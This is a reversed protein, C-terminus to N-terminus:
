GLEVSGRPTQLSVTLGPEDGSGVPIALELVSLVAEVTDPRPHRLAVADLACGTAASAAPHPTDGWDILFPVLGGGEPYVSRTLRWSLEVGDPRRRSMAYVVGLDVGAEAKLRAAADDIDDPCVAFTVLRPTDIADIGFPRPSAPEPQDPDPAILEIYTREGLSVLANRTGVGPHAGGPTPAVGTQDAFWTTAQDLDGAAVVFHDIVTM